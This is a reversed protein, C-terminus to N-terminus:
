TAVPPNSKFTRRQQSPFTTCANGIPREDLSTRPPPRATEAKVQKATGGRPESEDFITSEDSSSSAGAAAPGLLPGVEKRLELASTLLASCSAMSALSSMLM